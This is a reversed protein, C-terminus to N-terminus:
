QYYVFFDFVKADNKYNAYAFIMLTDTQIRFTEYFYVTKSFVKISFMLTMIHVHFTKQIAALNWIHFWPIIQMLVWTKSRQLDTCSQLLKEAPNQSSRQVSEQLDMCIPLIKVSTHLNEKSIKAWIHKEATELSGIYLM